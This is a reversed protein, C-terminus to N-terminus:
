TDGRRYLKQRLEDPRTMLDLLYMYGLWGLEHPVHGNHQTLLANNLRVHKSIKTGHGHTADRLLKVYQAAADDPELTQRGLEPDVWEIAPTAKRRKIFFGDQLRELASIGREAGPLLIEAAEAPVQSKLRALTKKAFKLDCLTLIDRQTLRDLTDLATFLLTQRANTDRYAVQFSFVRRFLQEVTLLAHLHKAPVYSNAYDTFIAPDSLVAFLDNLRNAWWSIARSSAHASLTPIRSTETASKNPLLQLLECAYGLTGALPQGLTYIIVGLERAAPFAWIAPTLAGLLPATYADLTYIGDYLGESSAFVTEGAANAAQVEALDGSVFASDSAVQLTVSALKIRHLLQPSRRIVHVGANAFVKDDPDKEMGTALLNEYTGKVVAYLQSPLVSMTKLQTLVFADVPAKTKQVRSELRKLERVITEDAALLAADGSAMAPLLHFRHSARTPGALHDVTILVPRGQDWSVQTRVSWRTGAADIPQAILGAEGLFGLLNGGGLWVPLDIEAVTPIKTPATM